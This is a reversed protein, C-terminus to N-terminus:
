VPATAFCIEYFELFTWWSQHLEPFQVKIISLLLLSKIRLGELNHFLASYLQVLHIVDIM